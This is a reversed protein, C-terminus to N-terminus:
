CFAHPPRYQKQLYGVSYYWSHTLTMILPTSPVDKASDHPGGQPGQAAQAELGHQCASHIPGAALLRNNVAATDEESPM